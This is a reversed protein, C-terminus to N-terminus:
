AASSERQKLGEVLRPVDAMSRLVDNLHTCGVIGRLQEPVALRFGSLPAGVMRTVNPSAAPCEPFPLIRPDSTISLLEFTNPDATAVVRYEHIAIREGGVPSTASDQFGIDVHVVDDDLWVDIRRARRMGVGEQQALDHWGQPDDPHPLPPVLTSSTIFPNAVSNRNLASSGPAFGM